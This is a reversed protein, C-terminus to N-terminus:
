SILALMGQQIQNAQTIVSIGAQELINHRAYNVMETAIDTDRIRSEASLTNEATNDVNAITHELRNHQAGIKSRNASVKDLARQSREISDQAGQGTTVDLGNIGLIDTNMPDIELFIGQGELAGSQIWLGTVPGYNHSAGGGAPGYIPVKIEETREENEVYGYLPTNVISDVEIATESKNMSAVSTNSLSTYSRTSSLESPVTTKYVYKTDTGTEPFVIGLLPEHYKASKTTLADVFEDLTYKMATPKNFDDVLKLAVEDGNRNKFYLNVEGFDQTAMLSTRKLFYNRLDNANQLELDSGLKLINGNSSKSFSWPTAQYPNGMLLPLSTNGEYHLNDTGIKYTPTGGGVKDFSFQSLMVAKLFEDSTLDDYYKVTNGYYYADLLTRNIVDDYEKVAQNISISTKNIVNAIEDTTMGAKSTFNLKLDGDVYQWKKTGDANTTATKQLESWSVKTSQEHPGMQLWVGASDAMIYCNSGTIGRKMDLIQNSTKVDDLYNSRKIGISTILRETKSRYEDNIYRTSISNAIDALSATNNAGTKLKFEIDGATINYEKGPLLGSKMDDPWTYLVDNVSIGSLDANVKYSKKTNTYDASSNATLTYSLTSKDVQKTNWSMGRLGNIFQEKTLDRGVVFSVNMGKYDFNYTGAIIGSNLDIANGSSDKVSSWTIGDAGIKIGAEESSGSSITYTAPSTDVPNGKVSFVFSDTKSVPVTKKVTETKYGIIQNPLNPAGGNANANGNGYDQQVFLKRTNFSTEDSIKDIEQLIQSIEGQIAKRDEPTNTDNASQISLETIRHIMDSVDSLAGDAVQLLSIGDACNNSAKNLGRIQYRMKESISLGAADDAARNIRYGSALKETSKRKNNGVINFQRQANNALINHAIVM